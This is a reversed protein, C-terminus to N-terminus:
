NKKEKERKERVEKITKKDIKLWYYLDWDDYEIWGDDMFENLIRLREKEIERRIVLQNNEEVTFFIEVDYLIETRKIPGRTNGYRKMKYNEKGILVSYRYEGTTELKAFDTEDLCDPVWSFIQNGKKLSNEQEPPHGYCGLGIKPWGWVEKRYLTGHFYGEPSQGYYVEESDNTLKFLLIEGEYFSSMPLIRIEKPSHCIKKVVISGLKRRDNFNFVAEIRKEEGDIVFEHKPTSYFDNLRPRIGFELRYNGKKIKVKGLTQKREFDTPANFRFVTDEKANENIRILRYDYRDYSKTVEKSYDVTSVFDIEQSILQIGFFIFISLATIKKM